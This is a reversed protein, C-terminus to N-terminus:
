PCRPVSVPHGDSVDVGLGEFGYVEDGFVGVSWLKFIGGRRLLHPKSLKEILM